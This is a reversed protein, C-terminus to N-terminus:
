TPATVAVENDAAVNLPPVINLPPVFKYEINECVSVTVRTCDPVFIEVPPVAFAGVIETTADGLKLENVREPLPCNAVTVAVENDAAVNLPPVINLPPVFKYEINECVSVTVRTCGPVFIVVPPVAFTGVTLKVEEGDTFLM